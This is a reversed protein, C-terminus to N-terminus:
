LLVCKLFHFTEFQYYEQRHNDNSTFYTTTLSSTQPKNSNTRYCHLLWDMCYSNINLSEFSQKYFHKSLSHEFEKIRNDFFLKQFSQVPKHKIELEFKLGSQGKRKYMRYYNSSTRSGIKLILGKFNRHWSAHRRKSKARVKQCSKEMFRKLKQDNPDTNQSQNERFYCIDLRVITTVDLDFINWNFKHQQVIKYFQEANEGSFNIKTGAWFSKIQPDYQYQRFSVQFQNQSTHLLSKTKWKGDIRKAFTSNFGFNHFLYEAIIEVQERDVLGQINFGIWDVALNESKFSLTKM